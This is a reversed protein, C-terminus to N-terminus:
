APMEVDRCYVGLVEALKEFNGGAASGKLIYGAVNEDYSESKDKPLNSTTYIFIISDSLESDNRMQQVLKIGSLRPMNVDSVLLFPKNIKKAGNTGRLIDLAEIGDLARRIPHPLKAKTFARQLAIFDGDDDEVLLITVLGDATTM